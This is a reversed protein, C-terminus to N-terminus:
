GDQEGLRYRYITGSRSDDHWDPLPFANAVLRAGSKANKPLWDRLRRMESPLLYTFIADADKFDRGVYSGWRFSTRDSVGYRRAQLRSWIVLFPNMEWGTAVAGAKAAAIVIRGDGSGLDVAREGPKLGALAIMGAVRADDSPVFPARGFLSVFLAILYIAAGVFVLLAVALLLYLM